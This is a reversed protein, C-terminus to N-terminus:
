VGAPVLQRIRDMQCSAGSRSQLNDRKVCLKGDRSPEVYFGSYFDRPRCSKELRASIIRRDNTYLLLRAADAQVAIISKLELCNGMKREIYDSPPRAPLTAVLSQRSRRPSVRIIVRQQIRVQYWPQASNLPMIVPWKVPLAQEGADAEVDPTLRAMEEAPAADSAAPIPLLLALPAFLDIFAPM